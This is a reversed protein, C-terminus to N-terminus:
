ESRKKTDRWEVKLDPCDGTTGGEYLLCKEKICEGHKSCTMVPTM